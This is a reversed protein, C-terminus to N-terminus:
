RPKFVLPIDASASGTDVNAIRRGVVAAAACRQISPSLPRAFRADTITGAGDTDVHLVAEGELPPSLQPLAARYCNTLAVALGAVTRNV